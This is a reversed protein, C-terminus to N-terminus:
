VFTQAVPDTGACHFNAQELWLSVNGLRERYLELEAAEFPGELTPPASRPFPSADEAWPNYNAAIGCRIASSVNPLPHVPPLADAAHCAAAADFLLDKSAFMVSIGLSHTIRAYDLLVPDTANLRDNTAQDTSYHVKPLAPLSALPNASRVPAGAPPM